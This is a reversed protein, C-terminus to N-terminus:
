LSEFLTQLVAPPTGIPIVQVAGVFERAAPQQYGPKTAVFTCTRVARITHGSPEGTDCNLGSPVDVALVLKKSRNIADIVQNFPPRPDGQVGTGLLCDVVWSCGDLMQEFKTLDDGVEWTLGCRRLIEFNTKADGQLEEPNAWLVTQTAIGHISLHRAIVFGDGGNNGKGCCILVPGDVRENLLSEAVGRGANEMLVLGSIGFQAIALRDFQRNQKATLAVPNM